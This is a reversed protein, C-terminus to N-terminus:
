FLNVSHLAALVLEVASWFLPIALLVVVIAVLDTSQNGSFWIYGGLLLGIVFSWAKWM